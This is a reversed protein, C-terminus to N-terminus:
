WIWNESWRALWIGSHSVGDKKVNDHYVLPLEDRGYWGGRHWWVPQFRQEGRDGLVDVEDHLQAVDLACQAHGVDQVSAVVGTHRWFCALREGLAQRCLANEHLIHGILQAHIRRQGGKEIVVFAVALEGASGEEGFLELVEGRQADGHPLQLVLAWGVEELEDGYEVAEVGLEVRNALGSMAVVQGTHAQESIELAVVLMVAEALANLVQLLRLAAVNIRQCLQNVRLGVGHRVDVGDLVLHPLEAGAGIESLM